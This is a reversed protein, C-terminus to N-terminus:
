CSWPALASAKARLLTAEPGVPITEVFPSRGVAVVGVAEQADDETFQALPEPARHRELKAHIPGEEHGM